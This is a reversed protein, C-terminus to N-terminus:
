PDLLQLKLTKIHLYKKWALFPNKQLLKKWNKPNKDHFLYKYM